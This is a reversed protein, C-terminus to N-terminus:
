CMDLVATSNWLGYIDSKALCNINIFVKMFMGERLYFFIWSNIRNQFVGEIAYPQFVCSLLFIEIHIKFQVLGSFLLIIM